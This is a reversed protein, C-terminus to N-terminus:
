SATPRSYLPYERNMKRIESWTVTKGGGLGPDGQQQFAGSDDQIFKSFVDGSLVWHEDGDHPTLEDKKLFLLIKEGKSFHAGLISDDEGTVTVGDATGGFTRVRTMAGVPRNWPQRITEDAVIVADQYVIDRIGPSQKDAYQPPVDMVEYRRTVHRAREVRRVTGILVLPSRRFLVDLKSGPVKGDRDVGIQGEVTSTRDRTSHHSSAAPEPSRVGLYIVEAIVGVVAVWSLFRRFLLRNMEGRRKSM